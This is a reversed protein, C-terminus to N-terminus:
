SRRDGEVDAKLETPAGQPLDGPQEGPHPPGSQSPAAYGRNPDTQLRTASAAASENAILGSEYGVVAADLSGAGEAGVTAAGAFEPTQLRHEMAEPDRTALHDFQGTVEKPDPVEVPEYKGENSSSVRDEPPTTTYMPQHVDRASDAGTDVNGPLNAKNPDTMGANDEGAVGSVQSKGQHGKLFASEPLHTRSSGLLASFRTLLAEGGNERALDAASEGEDTQAHPFAGRALLDAVVEAAGERVALLLPTWGGLQPANVDAGRGILVQAVAWHRGGLASHLPQAAQANRSVACPDAGADLLAQVTELRGFMAALHLPTFGEPGFLDPAGFQEMLRATQGTAAAEFVDLPPRAALLVDLVYPRHYYVAFMVLSLGSPSRAALLEPEAQVLLQVGEPNNAHIAAFLDTVADSPM